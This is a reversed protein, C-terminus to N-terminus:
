RAARYSRAARAVVHRLRAPTAIPRRARIAPTKRGAAITAVVVSCVAAIMADGAAATLCDVAAIIADGAAATSCGVAAVAETVHQFAVAAM